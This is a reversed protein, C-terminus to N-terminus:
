PSHNPDMGDTVHRKIFPATLFRLVLKPRTLWEIRVGTKKNSLVRDAMWPAVTEARDAIINFISKVRNWEDPRGRYPGVVLETLIMGPQLAGVLIGTGRAEEALAQNFYRLGYKTTGYFILGKHRRGDSGMGEMNYIGGDGQALMGKLAVMSGYMAGLLNTVVVSHVLEPPQEWPPEPKHGLGANNIWIDVQGFRERAVDWLRQIQDFDTVDAAHGVVREALGEGALAAVAAEVAAASRGNVLM